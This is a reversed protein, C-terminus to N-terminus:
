VSSRHLVEHHLAKEYRVAALDGNADDAGTALHSNFADRDIRVGVRARRVDGRGIARNGDSPRRRALAVQRNWLDHFRRTRAASDANPSPVSYTSRSRSRGRWM